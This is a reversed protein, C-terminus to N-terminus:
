QADYSGDPYVKTVTPGGLYAKEGVQPGRFFGGSTNPKFQGTTKGQSANAAGRGQAEVRTRVDKPSEMWPLKVSRSNIQDLNEQWADLKQNGVTAGENPAPMNALEIDLAEKSARGM